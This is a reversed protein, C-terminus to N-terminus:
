KATRGAIDLISTWLRSFIGGLEPLAVVPLLGRSYAEAVRRDDPIEAVIAVKRSKCFERASTNEPEHRNVVVGHPLGLERVMDLALALDNLGFPTPETVLLVFDVHNVATIVPCSTGPPADIINIKKDNVTERVRRIVPPSMVQGVHLLGMTVSIGCSNGFRLVGVERDIETIAGTPCVLKCGGCAHCLEPFTIVRGKVCAIAAYQCIAACKGCGTCKEQDVEPIAIAVPKETKWTPNLFLHGNPEEVDCDLYQVEQKQDALVRAMCTAITTKGTGGKGSAVAIQM